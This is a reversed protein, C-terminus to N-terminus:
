KATREEEDQVEGSRTIFSFKGDAELIAWRVQSLDDIGKLRAEERIEDDTLRETHAVAEQIEGDRVVVVPLGELVPRTRKWRFGVVSAALIWFAITTVALIAGTVSMDEQTIGQQVLDGITILLVLEFATIESLERKGLARMLIWIFFYIATARIMIEM